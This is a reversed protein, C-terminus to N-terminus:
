VAETQESTDVNDKLAVKVFALQFGSKTKLGGVGHNRRVLLSLLSNGTKEHTTTATTPKM